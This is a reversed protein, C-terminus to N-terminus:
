IHRQVRTSDLDFGKLSLHVRKSEFLNKCGLDVYILSEIITIYM